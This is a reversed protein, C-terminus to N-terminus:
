LVRNDNVFSREVPVSKDVKMVIFRQRHVLMDFRKRRIGYGVVVILRENRGVEAKRGVGSPKQLLEQLAVRLGRRHNM